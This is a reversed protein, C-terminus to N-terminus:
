AATPQSATNAVFIMAVIEISLPVWSKEGNLICVALRERLFIKWVQKPWTNSPKLHSSNGPFSLLFDLRIQFFFSVNSLHMLIDGDVGRVM